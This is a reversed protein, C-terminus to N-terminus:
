GRFDRVRDLIANESAATAPIPVWRGDRWGRTEVSVSVRTITEGFAEVWVTAREEVRSVGAEDARPARERWGTQILGDAAREPPYDDVARVAAAWVRAYPVDAVVMRMAAAETVGAAALLLAAVTPWWRATV